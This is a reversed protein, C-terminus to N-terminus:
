IMVLRQSLDEEEQGHGLAAVHPKDQSSRLVQEIINLVKEM